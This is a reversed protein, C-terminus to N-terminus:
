IRVERGGCSLVAGARYILSAGFLKMRHQQAFEIDRDMGTFVFQGPSPEVQKQFVFSVFVNFERGLADRYRPDDFIRMQM